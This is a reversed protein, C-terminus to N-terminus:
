LVQRAIRRRTEDMPDGRLERLAYGVFAASVDKRWYLDLDTNDLPKARAAVASAVADIVADDLRKGVLLAAAREVVVPQSAVAGLVIRAEAITGDAAARLAAGVGLVPFDFAGRRRLKWYTSRLGAAPPLIVESLIEDPRRALYDIGDNRYLSALPLVREGSASILRVSAGLAILAPACDTSSAAVCRKSATAVWCVSGDRKLCFDIAKRWEYNQDYYNCRTDLCLNGGITGMNRLLPTSIERVAHAFAAYHQKLTPHHELVSLKVMAGIAVRGDPLVDVSHLGPVDQLSIVETPTQHRRKMNPYLDTGGAVFMAAKGHAKHIAVAEAATKPRHYTFTPLRLM